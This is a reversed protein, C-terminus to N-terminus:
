KLEVIKNSKILEIMDSLTFIEGSLLYPKILDTIIDSSLNTSDNIFFIDTFSKFFEINSIKDIKMINELLSKHAKFFQFNVKFFGSKDGLIYIPFFLNDMGNQTSMITIKSNPFVDNMEKYIVDGTKFFAAEDFIIWYKESYLKFDSLTLTTTRKTRYFSYLSSSHKFEITNGNSLEIYSEQKTNFKINLGLSKILINVNNIITKSSNYNLHRNESFLIINIPKSKILECAIVANIVTSLGVGRDKRIIVRNNKEIANIVEEQGKSLVLKVEKTTFYDKRTLYKEILESNNYIIDTNEQSKDPTKELKITVKYKDM